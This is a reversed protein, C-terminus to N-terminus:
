HIMYEALLARNKENARAEKEYPMNYYGYRMWYWIYKCLFKVTGEREYQKVHQLEHCLWDENELFKEKNVGYIYITRRMVMAVSGKGMKFLAIRARFSKEKVYVVKPKSQM